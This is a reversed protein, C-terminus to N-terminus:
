VVSTKIPNFHISEIKKLLFKAGEASKLEFVVDESAFIKFELKNLQQRM